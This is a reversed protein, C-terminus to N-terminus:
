VGARLVAVVKERVKWPRWSTHLRSLWHSNAQGLGDTVQWPRPLVKQGLVEAVHAMEEPSAFRLERGQHELIWVPWGKGMEKPPMPPDTQSLERAVGANVRRHVYLSVPTFVREARYEKRLKM